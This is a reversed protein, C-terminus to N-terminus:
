MVAAGDNHPGMGAGANIRPGVMRGWSPVFLAQASVACHARACGFQVGMGTRVLGWPGGGCTM